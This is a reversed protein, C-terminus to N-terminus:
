WKAGPYARPIFQMEALIYGLHETHKGEKSGKQMFVESPMKLTAKTIIEAVHKDWKSKVSKIDAAIGEKTLIADSEDTDFLDGTFMWLDNLATQMKNHSEETGDGLRYMWETSHRLHYTIEKYAKAAVGAITEDKSKKLEEYLYYTFVSFLFQRIITYAYDGNPQEVLLANVFERENRLYALDDETRGKGEVQAAYRLLSTAHGMYDLAINTLAIDEELIPGHGCWESLRQALILSSDALRLCYAFLAKKKEM